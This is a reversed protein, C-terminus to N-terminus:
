PTRAIRPVRTVCQKWYALGDRVMTRKLKTGDEVVCWQRILQNDPTLWRLLHNCQLLKARTYVTTNVDREIVLWHNDMWYILSGLRIDDGPLTYLYKEDLNDSNIIAVDQFIRHDKAHRSEINYGYKAPYIEINTYSLNEPLKSSLYRRENLMTAEYRSRGHVNMRDAYVAYPNM